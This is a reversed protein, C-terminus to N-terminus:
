HAAFGWVPPSDLDYDKMLNKAWRVHGSNADLCLLDGMAGLTYVRGGAVLPTTRPGSSYSVKYPCDYEHQWLPKGTASDFCLIREKGLVGNRTPRLPKADAGLQRQGDMVYVRGAAVAPGSYGPGLPMRWLVTPGGAPFKELIEKERWVGDRKPGLWQPWDDAGAVGVTALTLFLGGLFGRFATHM